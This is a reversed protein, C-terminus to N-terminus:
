SGLDDISFAARALAIAAQELLATHSARPPARRM